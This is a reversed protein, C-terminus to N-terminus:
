RTNAPPLCIPAVGRNWLISDQTYVLAIDNENTDPNFNAHQKYSQVEYDASYYTDEDPSIQLDDRGVRVQLDSAQIVPSTEFCHAATM